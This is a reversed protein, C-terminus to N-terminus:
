FYTCRKVRVNEIKLKGVPLNTLDEDTLELQGQFEILYLKDNLKTLHNDIDLM